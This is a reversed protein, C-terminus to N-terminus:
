RTLFFLPRDYGSATLRIALLRKQFRAPRVWRVTELWPQTASPGAFSGLVARGNEFRKLNREECTAIIGNMRIGYNWGGGKREPPKAEERGSEGKKFWVRGEAGERYVRASAPLACEAGWGSGGLDRGGCDGGSPQGAAAAAGAWAASARRRRSGEVPVAPENSGAVWHKRRQKIQSEPWHRSSRPHWMRPRHNQSSRNKTPLPNPDAPFFKKPTYNPPITSRIKPSEYDGNKIKYTRTPISHRNQRGKM